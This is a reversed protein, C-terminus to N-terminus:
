TNGSLNYGRRGLATRAHVRSLLRSVTAPHVAFLRAADAGTKNGKSVMRIIEAQQQPTLKPRRGGIRGDRRAAELGARTRERLMAREFEAFAGVMQMMMRGAPTTTDIAETLSRFGARAGALREMLMLVDRLSRSLRDLKWVVLVDGRRLQDLLRHLEPRDWRGGSAKERYIRECGAAKLATVQAATEQESTSVRAYGILM